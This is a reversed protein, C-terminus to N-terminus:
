VRSDFWFWIKTLKLDESACYCVLEIESAVLFFIFLAAFISLPLQKICFHSPSTCLGALFFYIYLLFHIVRKSM